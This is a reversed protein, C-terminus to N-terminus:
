ACDASSHWAFRRSFLGGLLGDTLIQNASMKKADFKNNEDACPVSPARSATGGTLKRVSKDVRRSGNALLASFLVVQRKM